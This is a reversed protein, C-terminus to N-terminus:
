RVHLTMRLLEEKNKEYRKKDVVDTSHKGFMFLNKYVAILEWAIRDVM